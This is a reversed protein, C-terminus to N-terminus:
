REEEKGGDQGAQPGEKGGGQEAAGEAGQEAAPAAAAEAQLARVHRVVMWREEPRLQAAYSAMNGQGRSIIHFIQGEPLSRAHAATLSPPPLMGHLVAPGDGQGGAGHCPLCYIAYLRGGEEALAPDDPLPDALERGAREAEEPGPGYPFLDVDVPQVGDVLPQMTKGDPFVGSESYSEAPVPEYMDASVVFNRQEPDRGVLSRIGLTVALFAVVALFFSRRSSSM